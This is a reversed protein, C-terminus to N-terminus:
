FGAVLFDAGLELRLGFAGQLADQAVGFVLDDGGVETAIRTGRDEIRVGADREVSREHLEHGPVVVLPAVRVLAKFHRPHDRASRARGCRLRTKPRTKKPAPYNIVSAEAGSKPKRSRTRCRAKM